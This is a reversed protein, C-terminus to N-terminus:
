RAYVRYGDSRELVRRTLQVGLATRLAAAVSDSTADRGLEINGTWCTPKGQDFRSMAVEVLIGFQWSDLKAMAFDDLVLFPAQKWREIQEDTAREFRRRELQNLTIPVDCWAVHVCAREHIAKALCAATYSKYRGPAGLFVPAAGRSAEVWFQEGYRRACERLSRHPVQDLRVNSFQTPIPAPGMLAPHWEVAQLLWPAISSSPLTPDLTDALSTSNSISWPLTQM